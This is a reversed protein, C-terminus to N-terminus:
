TPPPQRLTEIEDKLAVLDGKVELLTSSTRELAEVISIQADGGLKLNAFEGIIKHRTESLKSDITETRRSIDALQGLMERQNDASAEDNRALTRLEGSITEHGDAGFREAIDAMVRMSEVTVVIARGAPLIVKRTFVTIATLATAVAGLGIIASVWGAVHVTLGGSDASLM